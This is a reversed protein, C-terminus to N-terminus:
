LNFSDIRHGSLFDNLMGDDLETFLSLFSLAVATIRHKLASFCSTMRTSQSIQINYPPVKPSPISRENEDAKINSHYLRKSM